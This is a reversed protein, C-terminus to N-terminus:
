KEGSVPKGTVTRALVGSAAAASTVALASALSHGLLGGNEKPRWPLKVVAAVSQGAQVNLLASAAAVTRDHDLLEIVYTGPDIPVFEFLGAADTPQEDVIRGYRADRLRVVAEALPANTATLANGRIVAFPSGPMGARVAQADVVPAGASAVLACLGLVFVRYMTTKKDSSRSCRSIGPRSMQSM